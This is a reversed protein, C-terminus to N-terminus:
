KVVGAADFHGPHEFDAVFFIAFKCYNAVNEKGSLLSLGMIQARRRARRGIRNNHHFM